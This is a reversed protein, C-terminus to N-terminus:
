VAAEPGSARKGGLHKVMTVVMGGCKPCSYDVQDMVSRMIHVGLGGPRVEDLSRSQICTPDVQRGFDRITIVLRPGQDDDTVEISIEIPQGPVGGYGHKIVNALAEDVALHVATLEEDAVNQVAMMKELVARVIPLSGSVSPVKLEVGRCISAALPPNM